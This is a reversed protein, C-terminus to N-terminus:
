ARCAEVLMIEEDARDLEDLLERKSVLDGNEMPILEDDGIGDDLDRVAWEPPNGPDEIGGGDFDPARDASAAMLEEDSWGPPIDGSRSSAAPEPLEMVAREAAEAMDVGEDRAIELARVVTADDLGPGALKQFEGVDRAILERAREIEAVADLAALDNGAFVRNGRIDEEMLGLLDAVTSRAMAQEPTGYLRDFYGAEAARLRASDLDMGDTKVLTGLGRRAIKDGGTVAMVEGNQDIVGGAGILFDTLSRPAKATAPAAESVPALAEAIREIQARNAPLDIARETQVADVARAVAQDHVEPDVAKPRASEILDLDQRHDIAGRAEAPLAQRITDLEIAAAQSDGALAARARETVNPDAALTVAAREMDPGRLARGILEGGGQLVGGFAGGLGAAFAVNALAEDFGAPLGAKQRWAQVQPQLAAEVGGNILAEKMAVNLIRGAVTRGAGPGAGILMTMVQVPDRVMGTAGGYLLGGWKKVGSSSQAFRDLREGASKAVELADEEIPRSLGLSGAQDPYQEAIARLEEEFRARARMVSPPPNDATYTPREAELPGSYVNPRPGIMRARDEAEAARLPNEMTRGTALRVAEIRQDYARDLSRYWGDTNDNYLAADHAAEAVQSFGAVGGAFTDLRSRGTGRQIASLM